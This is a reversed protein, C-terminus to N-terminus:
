EGPSLAETALVRTYTAVDRPWATICAEFTDRDCAYLARIAEEYGPQDGAMSTMFRFAAEQSRRIRDGDASERRAKEVLKRLAVSAGGPQASLWEWHRPLLTVERAVVGLKPRGPGRREPEAAPRDSRMDLDVQEGTVDDFVLVVRQDGSSHLERVTSTVSDPTGTTIMESGAFVTVLRSDM